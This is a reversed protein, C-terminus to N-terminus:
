ELSKFSCDAQNFESRVLVWKERDFKGKIEGSYCKNIVGQRIGYTTAKYRILAKDNKRSVEILTLWYPINYLFIDEGGWVMVKDPEDDYERKIGFKEDAKIVIFPDPFSRKFLSDLESVLENPLKNQKFALKVVAVLDKQHLTQGM